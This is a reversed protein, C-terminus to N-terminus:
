ACRNEGATCAGAEGSLAAVDSDDKIEGVVHPRDEREIGIRAEGNDLGTDDEVAHAFSGLKMVEGERGVWGRVRAAGKTPHDAVVGASRVGEHTAFGDVIDM